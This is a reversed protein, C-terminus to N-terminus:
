MFSRTNEYRGSGEVEVVFGHDPIFHDFILQEIAEDSRGPFLGRLLTRVDSVRWATPAAGAVAWLVHGSGNLCLRRQLRVVNTQDSM